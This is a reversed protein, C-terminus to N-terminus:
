EDPRKIRFSHEGIVNSNTKMEFCAGIRNKSHNDWDFILMPNLLLLLSSFGGIAKSIAVLTTFFVSMQISDGRVQRRIHTPFLGPPSTGIKAIRQLSASEPKEPNVFSYASIM